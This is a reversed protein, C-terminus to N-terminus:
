KLQQLLLVKDGQFHLQTESLLLVCFFSKSLARLAKDAAGMNDATVVCVLSLSCSM